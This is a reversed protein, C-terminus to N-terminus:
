GHRHQRHVPHRNKLKRKVEARHVTEIIESALARADSPSLSVLSGPADGHFAIRVSNKSEESDDLAVEIKLDQDINVM